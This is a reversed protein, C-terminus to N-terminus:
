RMPSMESTTAIAPGGDAPGETLYDLSRTFTCAWVAAAACVGLVVARRM